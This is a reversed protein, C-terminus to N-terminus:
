RATLKSLSMAKAQPTEHLVAGSAARAPWGQQVADMTSSCSHQANTSYNSVLYSWLFESLIVAVLDVVSGVYHQRFQINYKYSVLLHMRQCNILENWREQMNRRVQKMM